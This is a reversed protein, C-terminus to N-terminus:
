IQQDCIQQAFYVCNNMIHMFPKIISCLLVETSLKFLLNTKDYDRVKDSQDNEYISEWDGGAGGGGSIQGKTALADGRGVYM